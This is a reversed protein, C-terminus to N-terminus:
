ALRFSLWVRSSLWLPLFSAWLVKCCFVYKPGPRCRFCISLFPFVTGTRYSGAATYRCRLLIGAQGGQICVDM